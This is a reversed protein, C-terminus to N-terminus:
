VPLRVHGMPFLSSGGSFEGGLRDEIAVDLVIVAFAMRQLQRRQPVLTTVVVLRRDGLRQDPRPPDLVEERQLLRALQVSRHLTQDRLAVRPDFLVQLREGGAGDM